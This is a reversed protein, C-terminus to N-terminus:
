SAKKKGRARQTGSRKLEAQARKAMADSIARDRDMNRHQYILAAKPSSHGMREM